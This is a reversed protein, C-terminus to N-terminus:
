ATADYHEAAARYAHALPSNLMKYGQALSDFKIGRRTRKRANEM